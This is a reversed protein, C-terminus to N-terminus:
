PKMRPSLSKDDSTHGFQDGHWLGLNLDWSHIKALYKVEKKKKKSNFYLQNVTNNTEPTCYLYM